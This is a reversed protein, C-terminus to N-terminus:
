ERGYRNLQLGIQGMFKVHHHHAGPCGPQEAGADGALAAELHQQHVVALFDGFFDADRAAAAAVEGIAVGCRGVEEALVRMKAARGQRAVRRLVEDGQQLAVADRKVFFVLALQKAVTRGLVHDVHQQGLTIGAADRAPLRAADFADGARLLRACAAVLDLAVAAADLCRLHHDGGAAQGDGFDPGGIKTVADRFLEAQAQDLRAGRQHRQGEVARGPCRIGLQGAQGQRHPDFGSRWIGGRFM